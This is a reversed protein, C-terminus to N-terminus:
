KFIFNNIYNKDEWFRGNGTRQHIDMKFEGLSTLHNNKYFFGKYGLQWLIEFVDFVTEEQLHRNECEMIIIPHCKKLLQLGGLLVKKEHGEVDLKILSPFIGKEYFYTDLTTIDIEVKTHLHAKETQEISAGPSTGSKTKPIFFSARGVANSLGKNELVVNKYHQLETIKQLYQFLIAQPEFGFVRGNNGVRRQLWYLYAGKHCGIDIITDGKGIHGLAFNIENADKLYKYKYARYLYKLREIMQRITNSSLPLNGGDM